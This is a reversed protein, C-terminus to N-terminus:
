RRRNRPAKEGRETAATGSGPSDAHDVQGSDAITRQNLIRGNGFRVLCDAVGPYVEIVDDAKRGNWNRLLQVQVQQVQKLKM